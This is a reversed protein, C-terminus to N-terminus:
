QTRVGVVARRASRFHRKRTRALEPSAWSHQKETLPVVSGAVPRSSSQVFLLLPNLRQWVVRLHPRNQEAEM